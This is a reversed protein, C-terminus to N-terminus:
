SAAEKYIALELSQGLAMQSLLCSKIEERRGWGPVQLHEVLLTGM